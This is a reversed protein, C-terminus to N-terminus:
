PQGSLKRARFASETPTMVRRTGDKYEAILRDWQDIPMGPGGVASMM